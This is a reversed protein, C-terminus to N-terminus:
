ELTKRISSILGDENTTYGDAIAHDALDNEAYESYGHWNSEETEPYQDYHTTGLVYNGWSNNSLYDPPNPAYLRMHILVYEDVSTSFTKGSKTGRDDDWVWGNGDDIKGNMVNGFITSGWYIDKVKDIEANNWHLMTVPWDVNSSSDTESEFDYNRFRDEDISLTALNDTTWAYSTNHVGMAVVALALVILALKYTNM